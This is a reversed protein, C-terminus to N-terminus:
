VQHHLTIDDEQLCVDGDTSDLWIKGTPDLSIPRFCNRCKPYKGNIYYYYADNALEWGEINNMCWEIWDRDEDIVEEVTRNRYNGSAFKHGLTFPHIAQNQERENPKLRFPPAM